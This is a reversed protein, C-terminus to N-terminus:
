LKREWERTTQQGLLPFQVYSSEPNTCTSVYTRQSEYDPELAFSYGDYRLGDRNGVVSYDAPYREVTAVREHKSLKKEYYEVVQKPSAQPSCVRDL